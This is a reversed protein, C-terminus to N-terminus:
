LKIFKQTTIQTGNDDKGIVLYVGSLLSSLELNVKSDNNLLYSQIKQGNFDVIDIASISSINDITVVDVVPNPYVLISESVIDETSTSNRLVELNGDVDFPDSWKENTYMDVGTLTKFFAIVSQMEEDTMNLKQMFAGDKLRPDVVVSQMGTSQLIDNYHELVQEMDTFLGNHMLPGNLEGLPNFVDRLSPSRTVGEELEFGNAAFIVGNTRSNPNISFEPPVHCSACAFGGGIRNGETGFEIAEIFLRKGLNEEETFNDFPQRDNAANIRGEDYRSDFSQISRIFQGLASQIREETIGADGFAFEFLTNYYDVDELKEILGDFDPNGFEGDYGMEVADQIPMTTQEELTSAREDWFFRHEESFRANVLRMSHRGTVGFSGTSVQNEDSFALSQQHCSSCSTNNDVSLKKDYFLVRGLTAVEDSIQNAGTNDFRIYPPVLQNSYNHLADLYIIGSGMGIIFTLVIAGIGLKRM